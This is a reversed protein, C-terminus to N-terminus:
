TRCKRSRSLEARRERAHRRGALTRRIEATIRDGEAHTPSVVLATKGEAVTQVYDAALQQYREDAAIGCGAWITSGSSDRRGNARREPGARGGQVSRGAAPNRQGRGASLGAEEELLRLAAGREVSGHQHRDGSLLVRADLQRGPRLREAMTKTGLLGAEDIWILQGAVQQQLKEDVCCGPWRTPTRSAQRVCRAGAPMPRRPSPSCKANREGRDGRRSRADADNQRRRGCRPGAHDPRPIRRYAQGSEEARRQALGARVDDYRTAFPKCTGRGDRAFDIVRREEDLVDRTTVMRRGDRDGIILDSADAQRSFKNWRPRAWRMGCPPVGLLQREPVVSKREFVHGIAYDVARASATDDAPEADGGLKRELSRWPRSNRRRCGAEGPRGAIRRLDPRKAQARADQGGAGAKAEADDIGM